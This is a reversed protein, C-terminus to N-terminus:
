LKRSSSDGMEPEVDIHYFGLGKTASGYFQAAPQEKKWELCHEVVHDEKQCIFCCRAKTCTTSYHGVDGCNFCVVNIFKDKPSSVIEDKEEVEMVAKQTSGSTQDPEV